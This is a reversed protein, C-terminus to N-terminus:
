QAAGVEEQLVAKEQQLQKNLQQAAGLDEQLEAKEQQLQKNLQQAASVKSSLQSTEEAAKKLQKYQQKGVEYLYDVKRSEKAKGQEAAALQQQLAAIQAAQDAMTQKAKVLSAEAEEIYGKVRHADRCVEWCQHKCNLWSAPLRLNRERMLQEEAEQLSTLYQRHLMAENRSTQQLEAKLDAARKEARDLRVQMSNLEGHAAELQLWLAVADDLNPLPQAQQQPKQQPAAPECTTWDYDEALSDLQGQLGECHYTLDLKATRASYSSPAALLDTAARMIGKASCTLYPIVEKLQRNKAKLAQVHLLLNAPSCPTLWRCHHHSAVPLAKMAPM